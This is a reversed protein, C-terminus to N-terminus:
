MQQEFSVNRPARGLGEEGGRPPLGGVTARTSLWPPRCGIRELTHRIRAPEGWDSWTLGRVPHVLLSDRGPALITRSFDMAPLHLYAEALAPRGASTDFWSSVTQLTVLAAPQHARTLELFARVTGAMVFSNWLAGQRQLSEALDAEPKEWFNAVAFLEHDALGGACRAGPEIWGYNTEPADPEMGLLVIRDPRRGSIVVAEAVHTLFRSEEWVFHDAPFVAVSAEPHRQAIWLLPLLLGPGTERNAPQV